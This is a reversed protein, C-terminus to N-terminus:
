SSRQIRRATQFLCTLGDSLDDACDAYTVELTRVKTPDAVVVYEFKDGYSAFIKKLHEGKSESRGTGRVSYGSQLLIQCIWAGIFGNAGTVLVTAPPLCTPM